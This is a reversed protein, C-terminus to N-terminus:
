QQSGLHPCHTRISVTMELHQWLDPLPASSAKGGSQNVGPPFPTRSFSPRSLFDSFNEADDRHSDDGEGEGGRDM